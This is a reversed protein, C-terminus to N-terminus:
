TVQRKTMNRGVRVGEPVANRGVYAELDVVNFVVPQVLVLEVEDEGAVEDAGDFVPWPEHAL